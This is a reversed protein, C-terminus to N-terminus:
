NSSNRHRNNNSSRNSDRSSLPGLRRVPSFEPIFHHDARNRRNTRTLHEPLGPSLSFLQGRRRRRRLPHSEVDPM